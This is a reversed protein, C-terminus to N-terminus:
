TNAHIGNRTQANIHLFVSVSESDTVSSELQNLTLTMKSPNTSYSFVKKGNATENTTLGNIQLQVEYQLDQLLELTAPVFENLIVKNNPSSFTYDRM